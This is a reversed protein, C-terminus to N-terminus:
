NRERIRNIFRLDSKYQDCKGNGICGDIMQFCALRIFDTNRCYWMHIFSYFM